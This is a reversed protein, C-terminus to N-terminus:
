RKGRKGKKEPFPLHWNAIVEDWDIEEPLLEAGYHARAALIIATFQQQIHPERLATPDFRKEPDRRWAPWPVSADFYEKGLGASPGLEFNKFFDVVLCNACLRGTTVTGKVFVAADPNRKAAVRCRINCRICNKTQSPQAPEPFLSQQEPM